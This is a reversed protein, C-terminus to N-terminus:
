FLYLTVQYNHHWFLLSRCSRSMKAQVETLLGDKWFGVFYPSSVSGTVSNLTYLWLIIARTTGKIFCTPVKHIMDLILVKEGNNIDYMASSQPHGKLLFCTTGYSLKPNLWIIHESVIPISQWVMILSNGIWNHTSLWCCETKSM